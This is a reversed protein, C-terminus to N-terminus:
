EDDEELYISHETKGVDARMSPPAFSVAPVEVRPGATHTTTHSFLTM